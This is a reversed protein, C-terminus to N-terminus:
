IKTKRPKELLVCGRRQACHTGTRVAAKYVSRARVQAFLSGTYGTLFQSFEM